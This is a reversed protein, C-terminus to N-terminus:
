AFFLAILAAAAAVLLLGVGALAPEVASFVEGDDNEEDLLPYQENSASDSHDTNVAAV